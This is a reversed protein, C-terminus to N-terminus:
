NGRKGIQKKLLAFFQGILSQGTILTKYVSINLLKTSEASHVYNWTFAHRAALLAPAPPAGPLTHGAAPLGGGGGGGGRHRGGDHPAPAESVFEAFTPPPHHTPRM